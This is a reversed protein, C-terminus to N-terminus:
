SCLLLGVVLPLLHAALLQLGQVLGPSGSCPDSVFVEMVETGNVGLSESAPPACEGIPNSRSTNTTPLQHPLPCDDCFLECAPCLLVGNYVWGALRVSVSLLQGQRLCLFSRDEVFVVLGQGSCWM